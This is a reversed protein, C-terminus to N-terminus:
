QPFKDRKRILYDMSGEGEEYLYRYIRKVQQNGGYHLINVGDKRKEIHHNENFFDNNLGCKDSLVSRIQKLIKISHSAISFNAQGQKSIHMCGDGDFFGLIFDRIYESPINRIQEKGTKRPMIGYNALDQVMKKSYVGLSCSTTGQKINKYIRIPKSTVLFSQYKKLHDLDKISLCLSITNGRISGDAMLFGIWYAVEPKYVTMFIREDFFHVRRSRPNEQEQNLYLERIARKM